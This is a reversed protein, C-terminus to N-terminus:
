PRPPFVGSMAICYRLTIYPMQNDFPQNGGTLGIAGPQFPANTPGNTDYIPLQQPFTAFFTNSPSKNDPAGASAMLLHNHVPLNMINLTTAVQGSMEGLIYSPLGPGQGVHIPVRGRLDPLAFTTQGNGGYTTGYLSFLATYQAIPLIRGDAEVWNRPCFTFGVIMLQGLYPEAGQAQVRGSVATALLGAAAVTALMRKM